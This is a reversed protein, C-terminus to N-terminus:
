SLDESHIDFQSMAVVTGHRKAAFIRLTAWNARVCATCTALQSQQLNCIAGASFEFFPMDTVVFSLANRRSQEQRVCGHRCVKGGASRFNLV